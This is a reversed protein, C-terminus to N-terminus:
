FPSDNQWGREPLLTVASGRSGKHPKSKPRVKWLPCHVATCDQVQKRWSGGGAYNPDYLCEKCFANISSRLGM